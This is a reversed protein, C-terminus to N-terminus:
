DARLADVPKVSIARKAPILGALLGAIVLIMLAKLAVVIDVEPNLFMTPSDGGDGITKSIFELLFVGFVLGTYGAISTLIVSEALIQSVISVPTAGIARRIGIEKTREKVIILMINSVGIVGASLTGLGVIWILISIGNFLGNMKNFEEESNFHGLARDDDPSIKHRKKLLSIVKEEAESAPIGVKSTIAFWGIQDGFNFAQQFSTFPVYITQADREGEDGPKTAAFVGVVKFFVGNIFINQGIPDEEEEFLIDKVRNGIIAVKRKDMIDLYNIFRGETVKVAQIQSIEPYDGMVSFAGTKNNRIVNNGGRFGGLQNRPALIDVEPVQEAIAKQDANNLEIRRGPPMGLYPKSTRQTWIYFSNTAFDSFGRTAGNELGRGSGLMLILMFIGWFVGFATLFTRLKNRSLASYIEKYNDLDFM